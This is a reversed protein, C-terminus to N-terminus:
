MRDMTVLIDVAGRQLRGELVPLCFLIMVPMRTMEAQLRMDCLLNKKTKKKLSYMFGTQRM